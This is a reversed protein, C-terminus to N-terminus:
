ETKVWNELAQNIKTIDVGQKQIDGIKNILSNMFNYAAQEKEKTKITEINLPRSCKICYNAEFPNETDCFPCPKNKIIEASFSEPKEGKGSNFLMKDRLSSFSQHIYVSPTTSTGVWGYKIRLEPENYGQNAFDTASSHRFGHAHIRKTIGAKKATKKLVTNVADQTMLKGSKHHFKKEVGVKPFSIWVKNKGEESIMKENDKIWNLWDELYAWSQIFLVEREGTKGDIKTQGYGDLHKIADLSMGLAEGIRMGSEFLVAILAKDRPNTAYKIMKQVEKRTLIDKSRKYKMKSSYKIWCVQLPMGREDRELKIEKGLWLYFTKLSTKYLNMSTPAYEEVQTIYTRVRTKLLIPEPKFNLFFSIVEDKTIKDLDKPYAECLRKLVKLYPGMGTVKRGNIIKENYFRAVWDKNKISIKDHLKVEDLIKQIFEERRKESVM